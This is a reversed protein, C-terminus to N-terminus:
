VRGYARGDGHLAHELVPSGIRTFFIIYKYPKAKKVYPLADLPAWKLMSYVTLRVQLATCSRAIEAFEAVTSFYLSASEFSEAVEQGTKLREVVVRPLMKHILRNQKKQQRKMALAKKEVSTAFIKL